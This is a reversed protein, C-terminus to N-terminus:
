KHKYSSYLILEGEVLAITLAVMLFFPAERGRPRREGDAESNTFLINQINHGSM